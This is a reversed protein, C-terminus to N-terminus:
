SFGFLLILILPVSVAYYCTLEFIASKSPWGLARYLGAFMQAFTVCVAFAAFPILLEIVLNDIKENYTFIRAIPKRCSILLAAEVICIIACLIVSLKATKKAFVVNNAGIYKGVSINVSSSIGTALAYIITYLNYMIVCSSIAITRHGENAGIYGSVLIAIEMIMIELIYQILTPLSLKIYYSLDTKNFLIQFGYKRFDFLFGFGKCKLIIVSSILMLWFSLSTGLGAGLYGLNCTYMLLYMLGLASAANLVTVFSFWGNLEVVQSIRQFATFFGSGIIWPILVLSYNLTISEVKNPEGLLSMLKGSGFQLLTCPVTAIITIAISRQLLIALANKVMPQKFVVKQSSTTDDYDEAQSNGAGYGVAQPILTYLAGTLGWTVGEGTVTSYATALGIASIYVDDNSEEDYYHGVMITAFVAPLMELIIQLTILIINSLLEKTESIFSFPKLIIPIDTFPNFDADIDTIAGFRVQKVTIDDDNINEKSVNNNQLDDGLCVYSTTEELNSFGQINLM